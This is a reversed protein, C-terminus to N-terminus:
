NGAELWAIGGRELKPIRFLTSSGQRTGRILTQSELFPVFHLVRGAQAPATIQINLQPDPTAVRHPVLGEFNAFYFHVAGDIRATNAVVLPPADIRINGASRDGTVVALFARGNEGPAAHIDSKLASLFEKGPCNPFRAAQDAAGGQLSDTGTAVIRGGTTAYRMLAQKEEEGLISVNPLVVVPGQFSALTRPTVVELERHARLLLLIVGRYSPLFNEVDYDRSQPSFYVGVPSVPEWRRYIHDQYRKIWAFIQVRTPLNNSNAM